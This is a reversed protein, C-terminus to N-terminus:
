GASFEPLLGERDGVLHMLEIKTINVRKNLIDPLHDTWALLCALLCLYICVRTRLSTVSTHPESLSAGVILNLHALMQTDHSHM